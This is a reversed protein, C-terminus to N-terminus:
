RAPEELAAIVADNPAYDPFKAIDLPTYGQNSKVNKNAGAELLMRVLEANRDAAAFHLATQGSGILHPDGYVRNVDAGHQILVGAIENREQPTGSVNKGRFPTATYMLPTLGGRQDAHNVDAGLEILKRVVDLKRRYIAWDLATDGQGDPTDVPIGSKVLRECEAVDGDSAARHLPGLKSREWANLASSACFVVLMVVGVVLAAVVMWGVLGMSLKKLFAPTEVSPRQM